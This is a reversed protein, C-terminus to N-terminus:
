RPVTLAASLPRSSFIRGFRLRANEAPGVASFLVDTPEAIIGLTFPSVNFRTACVFHTTADKDIISKRGFVDSTNQTVKLTM